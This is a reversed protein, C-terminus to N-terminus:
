LPIGAAAIAALRYQRAADILWAAALGALVAFPPVVFVFHRIGNYMAPRLAVTVALPLLAALAVSLLIARRNPIIDRRIAAVLAGAAGALGLM